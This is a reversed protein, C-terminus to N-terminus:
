TAAGPLLWLVGGRSFGAERSVDTGHARVWKAPASCAADVASDRQDCTSNLFAYRVEGRAILRELEPVTTFVRAGYSTLVVIPRADKVILAGIGTASEAAVEYRATGQHARLYTSLLRLEEGPLAGVYGADSVRNKIAAADTSVAIALVALLTMAFAGARLAVSRVRLPIAPVRELVALAIAGLVGLLAIWWVPPRGYLLREAYVITIVLTGVLIALRARGRASTPM